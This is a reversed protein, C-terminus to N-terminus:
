ARSGGVGLSMFRQEFSTFCHVPLESSDAADGHEPRVTKIPGVAM